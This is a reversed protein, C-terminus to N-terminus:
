RKSWQPARRAKKLGYKKREVERPDRTLYGFPKIKKRLEPNVLVLARALGHRVAGAQAVIGGGSVKVSVSFEKELGMKELPSAAIRRYTALPFYSEFSVGNVIMRVGDKTSADKTIRVRAVSTKRRGVGEVYREKKSVAKTTPKTATKKTTKEM